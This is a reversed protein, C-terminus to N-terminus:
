QEQATFDASPQGLQELQEQVHITLAEVVKDTEIGLDAALLPGVRTPFGMWIDRWSRAANFFLTEARAVEVLDGADKRAAILHKAALANEKIREAEGTIRFKGALVDVLFDDANEDGIVELAAALDEPPLATALKGRPTRVTRVEPASVKAIDAGTDARRNERRWGSGALAADLKGDENTALKGSTIARRVLKDNCGDLKAFERISVFHPASM